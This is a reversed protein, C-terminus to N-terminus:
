MAVTILVAEGSARGDVVMWYYVVAQSFSGSEAGAINQVKVTVRQGAALVACNVSADTCPALTGLWGRNAVEFSISSATGNVIAVGDSVRAASVTGAVLRPETQTSEAASTVDSKKCALAGVALAIALIYTRSPM